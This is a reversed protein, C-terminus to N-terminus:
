RHRKTFSIPLNRSKPITIESSCLPFFLPQRLKGSSALKKFDWSVAWFICRLGAQRNLWNPRFMYFSSSAGFGFPDAADTDVDGIHWSVQNRNKYTKFSTVKLRKFAQFTVILNLNGKKFMFFRPIVTKILLKSLIDSNEFMHRSCSLLYHRLAKLWVIRKLNLHNVHSSLNPFWIKLTYFSPHEM